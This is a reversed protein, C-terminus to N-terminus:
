VAVLWADVGTVEGATVRVSTASGVDAADDHWETVLAGTPDLFGVVYDGAGLGDVVYEGDADVTAGGVFGFTAADLVVVWGGQTAENAPGTVTGAISGTYGSPELDADVTVPPGAGVVVPTSGALDTIPHDDHWEGAHAGAPDVFEVRYTGPPLDLDYHGGADTFGGRVFSFDAADLAVVLAGELPDGGGTVTGDIGAGTGAPATTALVADAASTQGPQLALVDSESPVVSDDFFEVVHAGSPDVFVVLHAGSGLGTVEYAGDGGTVVGAALTGDSLDVVGVFVGALPAGGPSATVTGAVAATRGAPALAADAVNPVAPNVEVREANALDSLPHDDYWEGTHGGSPDLFGVWRDGIGVAASYVGDDGAAAGTLRGTDTDIGLVWAGPVPDGSGSETVQGDLGFGYRRVRGAGADLVYLTGDPAVSLADAAETEWRSLLTGDDAFVKVVDAGPRGIAAYLRGSADIDVDGIGSGATITGLFTGTKTWRRIGNQSDYVYVRNSADHVVVDSGGTVAFSGLDAGTPSLGWVRAESLVQCPLVDDCSQVYPTVRHVVGDQGVGIGSAYPTSAVWQSLGNPSFKRVAPGPSALVVVNGGADVDLDFAGARGFESEFVGNGDFRTIVDNGYNLVVVDGTSDVAIGTPGDLQGPLEGEVGWEDALAPGPAVAVEVAAAESLVPTTQDADVTATHSFTGPTAPVPHCEVIHEEGPALDPIPGTCGPANVDVVTVGTLTTTGTNAVGVTVTLPRGVSGSPDDFGARVTVFPGSAVQHISLRSRGSGATSPQQHSTVLRHDAGVDVAWRQGNGLDFTRAFLGSRSYKEVDDSAHTVYLNGYEDTAVGAAPRTSTGVDVVVGDFTPRLGGGRTFRLVREHGRDVVYVSPGAGIAVDGPDDLSAHWAVEFVGASSFRQVRDNGSDAVFVDGTADVAIGAPGDFQGQGSGTTGWQAEFVGSSSFRQVRDNGTDAVLVDGSPDVVVSEPADFAGPGTGALPGGWRSVYTGDAALRQVRHNGLEVVYREGSPSVAVDAVTDFQPASDTSATGLRTLFGGDADFRNLWDTRDLMRSVLTSTSDVVTLLGDDDVAVGRPMWLLGPALNSVGPSPFTLPNGLEVPSALDTDLITVRHRGSSGGDDSVYVRGDPGADIAMPAYSGPAWQDLFVGTSTYRQVKGGAAAPENNAVLVTGDPAVAVDTPDDIEQPGPNPGWATVFAGAGTFVQIRHNGKDAVFVIGDAAVALGWPGNFQGNGSGPSGWTALFDGDADFHQIRHNGTDAVYVSGDPAVAVGRPDSFQGDGSGPTGWVDLEVGEASVHRIRDLGMEAVYLDGNADADVGWPFQFQLSGPYGHGYGGFDAVHTVSLENTAAGAPPASRGAAVLTSGVLGAIAVGAVAIQGGRRRGM